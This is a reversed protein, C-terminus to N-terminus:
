LLSVNCATLAVSFDQYTKMGIAYLATSNLPSQGIIAVLNQFDFYLTELSSFCSSSDNVAYLQINSIKDM